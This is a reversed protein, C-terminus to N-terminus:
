FVSNVGLRERPQSPEGIPLIQNTQDSYIDTVFSPTEFVDDHIGFTHFRYACYKHSEPTADVYRHKGRKLALYSHGDLNKEIDAYIELDVERAVDFSDAIHSTDFKKVANIPNNAKLEAARRNLPHATVLTIGKNKNYNCMASYLAKVALHNGGDSRTGTGDKEMLNLYDVASLIIEYGAAEWKEVTAIYSPFNFQYPLHREIILTYGKTSFADYALDVIQDDTLHKSSIYTQNEYHHRAMWVFNQYAENELSIMLVLPKKGPQVINEASLQNYLPVWTAISMLLGSKYNHPLAYVVMSEGRALGGREGCLRNIGHLGMRLIGSVTRQKYKGLASTMSAKDSLDVQEFMSKEATGAAQSFSTHIEKAHALVKRLEEAQNVPSVMDAARNLQGFMTRVARNCRHWLLTNHLRDALYALKDASLTDPSLFVERLLEYEDRRKARDKNSQFKLLIMRLEDPNNKTVGAQMIQKLVHIYFRVMEDDIATNVRANNEFLTILELIVGRSLDTNDNLLYFIGDLFLDATMLM